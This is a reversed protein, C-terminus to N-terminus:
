VVFTIQGLVENTYLHSQSLNNFTPVGDISANGLEVKGFDSFRYGVGVRIHNTVEYDVGAGVRYSFSTRTEDKFQNSFTSFQPVINVSYDKATNSSVGVGGSIYPHFTLSQYMLNYLLKNEFLVQHAQIDYKYSFSDFILVDSAGQTVVGHTHFEMPQYYSFGTQLFWSPNLLIEIGLSVGYIFKSQDTNDADYSFSEDQIPDDISIFQSKGADDTFSAGLSVTAFPRWSMAFWDVKKEIQDKWVAAKKVVPSTAAISPQVSIATLGFIALAFGYKSKLLKKM